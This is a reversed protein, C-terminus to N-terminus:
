VKVTGVAKWRGDEALDLLVDTQGGDVELSWSRGRAFGRDSTAVLCYTLGESDLKDIVDLLTQPTLEASARIVTEGSSQREVSVSSATRLPRLGETVRVGSPVGDKVPVWGRGSRALELAVEVPISISRDLADVLETALFDQGNVAGSGALRAAALKLKEASQVYDTMADLVCLLGGDGSEVKTSRVYEGLSWAVPSESENGEEDLFVYGAGELTKRMARVRIGMVDGM